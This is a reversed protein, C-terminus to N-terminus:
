RSVLSIKGPYVILFSKLNFVKLILHLDRQSSPNLLYTFPSDVPLEKNSCTVNDFCCGAIKPPGHNEIPSKPHDMIKVPVNSINEPECPVQSSM